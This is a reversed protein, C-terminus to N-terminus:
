RSIDALDATSSPQTCPPQTFQMDVSRLRHLPSGVCGSRGVLGTWPTSTNRLQHELWVGTKLAIWTLVLASPPPGDGGESNSHESEPDTM